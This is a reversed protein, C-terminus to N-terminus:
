KKHAETLITEAIKAVKEQLDGIAPEEIYVNRPVEQHDSGRRHYKITSKSFVFGKTKEAVIERVRLREPTNNWKFEDTEIAKLRKERLRDYLEQDAKKIQELYYRPIPEKKGNVIMNGHRLDGMWQDFWGKGIGPKNSYRMFPWVRQTIEGTEKNVALYPRRKGNADYKNGAEKVTKETHSAVYRASTITLDSVLIQGRKWVEELEHARYFKDGRNNTHWTELDTLELGFLVPHYHPRSTTGGYEAATVYRHKLPKRAKRIYKHLLRHDRNSLNHGHPIHDDDYTVTGFWNHEHQKAEHIIRISLMRSKNVLCGMCKGCPIKLYVGSHGTPRQFVIPGSNGGEKRYATKPYYCPM